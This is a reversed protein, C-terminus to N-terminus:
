EAYVVDPNSSLRRALAALDAGPVLDIRYTDSGPGLSQAAHAGVQRLALNLLTANPGSAQALASLAARPRLKVILEGPLADRPAAPAAYAGFPWLLVLATLLLVPRLLKM